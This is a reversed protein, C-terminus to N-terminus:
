GSRCTSGVRYLEYLFCLHAFKCDVDLKTMEVVPKLGSVSAVCKLLAENDDAKPLYNNSWRETRYTITRMGRVGGSVTAVAASPSGGGGPGIGGSPPPATGLSAVSRYSLEPTIYRRGIYMEVNPAPYGGVVLCRVGVPHNEVMRLIGPSHGTQETHGDGLIIVKQVPASVFRVALVSVDVEACRCQRIVRM